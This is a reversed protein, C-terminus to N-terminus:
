LSHCHRGSTFSVKHDTRFESHDSKKRYGIVKQQLFEAALQEHCCCRTRVQNNHNEGIKPNKESGQLQHQTAPPFGDAHSPLNLSNTVSPINDSDPAACSSPLGFSIVAPSTCRSIQASVSELLMVCHPAMQAHRPLLARTREHMSPVFLSWNGKIDRSSTEELLHPFSFSNPFSLLFQTSTTPHTLTVMDVALM